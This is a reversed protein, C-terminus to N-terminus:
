TQLPAAHPLVWERIQDATYKPDEDGVFHGTLDQVFADVQDGTRHAHEAFEPPIYADHASLIFRVPMQFRQKRTKQFIAKADGFVFSRYTQQALKARQPDAYPRAFFAADERTFNTRQRVDQRIGKSMRAGQNQAIIKDSFPASFVLQYYMRLMSKLPPRPTPVVPPISLALLRRVREPHDLALLQSAFAGWDHAVIAVDDIGMADLLALLDRALEGKKVADPGTPLSSWGAGRLDPVILHAENALEGIVGRWGYWNQPFGHVLMIAPLSRDGARAVHFRGSPLDYFEHDVHVGPVDPMPGAGPPYDAPQTSSSQTM